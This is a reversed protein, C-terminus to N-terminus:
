SKETPQIPPLMVYALLVAVVGALFISGTWVHTKWGISGVIFFFAAFHLAFYVLPTLFAFLMFRGRQEVRVNLVRLLIDAVVGTIAALAVSSYSDDQTAVLAFSITWIVTMAGFPPRGERVLLLMAGVLLATSIFMAALGYFLLLDNTDETELPAAIRARYIITGDPAVNAFAEQFAPNNTLNTENQSDPTISYLEQNGDRWSM